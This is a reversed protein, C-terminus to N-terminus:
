AWPRAAARRARAAASAARASASAENRARDLVRRPSHPRSVSESSSTSRSSSPTQACDVALRAHARATLFQRWTPGSRPPRSRHRRDELDEVRDLRRDPPRTRRTRGPHTPLGLNPERPGDAAGPGPDARPHTPPGTPTEPLDPPPRRPPRALAAPIRPSVLRLRRLQTPLLRSPASLFARDVWTADPTPQTSAARRGRAPAGPDRGGQSRRIPRAAPVRTSLGWRAIM